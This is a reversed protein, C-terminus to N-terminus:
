PLPPFSSSTTLTGPRVIFTLSGMSKGGAAGSFATVVVLRAPATTPVNVFVGIGSSDTATANTAPAGGVLYYGVTSQDAAPLSFSVGAAPGFACDVANVAIHGRTPDLTTDTAQTLGAFEGASLLLTRGRWGDAVVFPVPYWISPYTSDGTGSVSGGTVDLYGDFGNLGPPVALSVLGSADTTSQALPSSCALDLKDCAKVVAGVFPEESSFDVFTVSFTITGVPPPSPWLVPGNLCEWVQGPACDAACSDNGVFALCTLWPSYDATGSAFEANCATPCSAAAFCNNRCLDLSACTSDEACTTGQSCCSAERCAECAPNGSAFEGCTSNCATACKGIRCARLAILTDPLTYFADCRARCAADACTALCTSAEKCAPDTACAQEEACCSKDICSACSASASPLAGCASTGLVAGADSTM